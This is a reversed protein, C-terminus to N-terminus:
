PYLAVATRHNCHITWTPRINNGMIFTKYKLMRVRRFVHATGLTAIKRLEKIGQKGPVINLYRRFLKSITRNARITVPLVKTKTNWRCQTEKTLDKCKLDKEAKKNIANRDRSIAINILLCKGKGSDRIITDPKNNPIIRDTKAQQNFLTTVKSEHTTKISTTVHEYGHQKDLKVGIKKAYILTYNLV